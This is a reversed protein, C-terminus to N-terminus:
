ACPAASGPLRPSRVPTSATWFRSRSRAAKPRTAHYISRLQQYCQWTINVEHLLVGMAAAAVFVVREVFDASQKAVAHFLEGLTLLGLDAAAEVGAVRAV